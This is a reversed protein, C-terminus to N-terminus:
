RWATLRGELRVMASNIGLGLLSITLIGAYMEPIRFSQQSSSILYGLGSTAGIMEAAILVLISGAAAMRLGAFITPVAAPLVVKAFTVGDPLDLARAVKLLAPDVTRVGSATTLLVPFFCAFAILAVKSVEGIGLVLTFVPLLALAATNRFLELVPNLADYVPRYWAVALGLPIGAAVALVFGTVARRLSADLHGFLTGDAILQAWAALVESLPPVFYDDVLGMTPAIQWIAAVAALGAAGRVFVRGGAVVDSARIGAAARQRVNPTARTKETIVDSM